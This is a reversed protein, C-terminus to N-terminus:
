GPRVAGGLLAARDGNGDLALRSRHVRREVVVEHRADRHGADGLREQLEALVVRLEARVQGLRPRDRGVAQGVRQLDALAHLEVVAGGHRDVVDHEAQVPDPIRVEGGVDAPHEPVHGIDRCGVAAGDDDGKVRGVRQELVRERRGRGVHDVLREHLGVAVLVARGVDARDAGTRELEDLPLAAVVLLEGAVVVVPVLGVAAGVEVLDRDLDDGLRRGADGPELRALDVPDDVVDRRVLVRGDLRDGIDVEREGVRVVALPDGEVGLLGGNSLTM